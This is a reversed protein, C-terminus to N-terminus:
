CVGSCKLFRFFFFLLWFAKAGIILFCMSIRVRVELFFYEPKYADYLFRLSDLSRDSRRLYVALETHTPPNLRDRKRYLLIFWAVPLSLYAVLLVANWAKFTQYHPTGCDFATNDRLYSVGNVTVCDLAAFQLKTISPLVQHSIFSCNPHSMCAAHAHARHRVTYSLV